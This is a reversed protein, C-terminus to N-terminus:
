YPVTIYLRTVIAKCLPCVDKVKMFAEIICDRHFWHDCSTVGCMTHKKSIENYCIACNDLDSSENSDKKQVPINKGDRSRVSGNISNIFNTIEIDLTEYRQIEALISEIYLDEILKDEKKSEEVQFEEVMKIEIAQITSESIQSLETIETELITNKEITSECNQAERHDKIRQIDRKKAEIEEKTREIDRKKAEIEEKTRQIDRNKVEKIMEIDRNKVEIEMQIERIRLELRKSEDVNMEEALMKQEEPMEAECFTRLENSPGGKNVVVSGGDAYKIFVDCDDSRIEVIGELSNVVVRIGKGDLVLRGGSSILDVTLETRDLSLTTTNYIKDIHLKPRPSSGDNVDQRTDAQHNQDIAQIYDSLPNQM